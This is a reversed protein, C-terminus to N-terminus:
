RNITFSYQGKVRHTDESVAHWNVTYRGPVLPEPLSVILQKQDKPDTALVGTSVTKGSEDKLELGSFKAIVGESFNLKIEKPAPSGSADAAPSASLLKPHAMAPTTALGIAMVAITGFTRLRSM